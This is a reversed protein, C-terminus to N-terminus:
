YIRGFDKLPWIRFVAKGRIKSIDIYGIMRSDSSRQRNDGLVFLKGEPVTDPLKMGLKETIGNAYPEDLKTGNVYVAGDKIDIEDGPLGIVRKIYDVESPDPIPIYKFNGEQVQLVVIDGRQPTSFKYGLKYEFLRQGDNLTTDMSHGEVLVPEFIFARIAFALAVAVAVALVWQFIEQLLKPSQVQSEM